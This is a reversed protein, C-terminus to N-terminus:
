KRITFVQILLLFFFLHVDVNRETTHQPYRRTKAIRNM